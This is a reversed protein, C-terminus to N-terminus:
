SRAATRSSLFIVGVIAVVIIVVLTIWDLNFYARPGATLFGCFIYVPALV